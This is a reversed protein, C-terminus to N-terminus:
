LLIPEGVNILLETTSIGIGVPAVYQGVTTPATQTLHGATGASLWYKQNAILGGSDGTQADWQTTTAALVGDSVITAMGGSAVTANSVLGLVDVTGVANARALDVTDNGSSYVAQGIVIAGANNNMLSIGGAGGVTADLTDGAQIQSPRGAYLVLPKKLAV